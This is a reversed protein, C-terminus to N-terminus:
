AKNRREDTNYIDHLMENGNYKRTIPREIYHVAIPRVKLTALNECLIFLEIQRECRELTNHKQSPM